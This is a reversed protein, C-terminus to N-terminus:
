DNKLPSVTTGSASHKRYWLALDKPLPNWYLGEYRSSIYEFFETLLEYPYKGVKRGRESFEVYDPHINVLAMGGHEAIWDLKSKWIAPTDEELLIFLTSDQALTYSLEVYGPRGSGPPPDVVFPFITQSGDPQPEFPDTDFTSSDYKVNLDHLWDLQRLMFGSRFGVADWKELYRNIREAKLRFGERSAYLRGDHHLDHVGVEYGNEVLWSRQAIPDQYPGEPIFNFCSRLGFRSELAAIKKVAAVGEKSEVDHTLVLAFQKGDPWGQWNAPKTGASRDIPWVSSNQKVIGATRTRRIAWRLGKPILPKLRYYARALVGHSGGAMAQSGPHIEQHSM